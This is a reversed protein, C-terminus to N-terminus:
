LGRVGSMAAAGRRTLLRDARRRNCRRLTTTRRSHPRLASEQEPFMLFLGETLISPYWTPRVLALDGRAVGLDRLGLNAVLHAQVDTALELSQPHNFFTSSGNNTFPNVGDPFANNHISVLLDADLSDALAVRPWLDVSEMGTRTMWVRAGAAVLRDRVMAAVALNAEPECLGTPGCAGGPPHGPDLVIRRGALPRSPDIPPPGRFEFVLDTGDVRVRWGWLPRDFTAHLTVRDDASQEWTLLHLFGPTTGYRTWNANSMADYLTVDAGGDREDVHLPVPRTLPVRLEARDATQTITPSGMVAARPDDAAAARHVDALPVWAVADHALRLRVEDGVRMDARTRTGQPFFWTYTGAPYPRGITTRDTGGAHRPDDDLVVGIPAAASRTVTLPWPVRTTDGHM